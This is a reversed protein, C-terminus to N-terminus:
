QSKEVFRQIQYLQAGGDSTKQIRLIFDGTVQPPLTFETYNNTYSLNIEALLQDTYLDFFM